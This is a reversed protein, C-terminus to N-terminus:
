AMKIESFMLGAPSDLLLALIRYQSISINCQSQLAHRIAALYAIVYTAIDSTFVAGKRHQEIGTAGEFYKPVHVIYRM